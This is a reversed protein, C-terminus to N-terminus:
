RIRPHHKSSIWAQDLLPAHVNCNWAAESRGLALNTSVHRLTHEVFHLPPSLGLLHRTESVLRDDEDDEAIVPLLAEAEEKPIIGRGMGTNKMARALPRLPEPMDMWRGILSQEVGYEAYQLNAMKKIPSSSRKRKRGTDTTSSSHVSSQSGEQSRVSPSFIPREILRMTTSPTFAAASSARPTAEEERVACALDFSSSHAADDSDSSEKRPAKRPTNMNVGLETLPRRRKRTDRVTDGSQAPLGHLWAFIASSGTTSATDSQAEMRIFLRKIARPHFDHSNGLCPFSTPGRAPQPLVCTFM